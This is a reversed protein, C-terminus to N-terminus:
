DNPCRINSRLYRFDCLSPFGHYVTYSVLLYPPLTFLPVPFTNRSSSLILIWSCQCCVKAIGKNSKQGARKRRKKLGSDRSFIRADDKTPNFSALFAAVLLFKTHEPLEYGSGATGLLGTGTDRLGVTETSHIGTMNSPPKFTFDQKVIEEGRFLGKRKALAFLGVVDVRGFIVENEDQDFIGAEIIPKM